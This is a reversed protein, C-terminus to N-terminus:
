TLGKRQEYEKKFVQLAEDVAVNTQPALRLIKKSKKTESRIECLAKEKVLYKCFVAFAERRPPHLLISDYTDGIGNDADILGFQHLRLLLEFGYNKLFFHRLRTDSYCFYLFDVM